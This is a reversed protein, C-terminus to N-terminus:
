DEWCLEQLEKMEEESQLNEQNELCGLEKKMDEERDMRTDRRAQELRLNNRREEMQNKMQEKQRLVLKKTSKLKRGEEICFTRKKLIRSFKVKKRSKEETKNRVNKLISRKVLLSLSVEVVVEPDTFCYFSMYSLSFSPSVQAVVEPDSFYFSSM